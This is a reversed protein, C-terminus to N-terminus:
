GRPEILLMADAITKLMARRAADPAPGHMVLQAMVEALKRMALQDNSYGDRNPVLDDPIQDQPPRHLDIM